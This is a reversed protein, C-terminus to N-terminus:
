RQESKWTAYEQARRKADPGSFIAVYCGGDDDFAEVRWDHPQRKDEFVEYEMLCRLTSKIWVPKRNHIGIARTGCGAEHPFIYSDTLTSVDGNAAPHCFQAVKVAFQYGLVHEKGCKMGIVQPCFERTLGRYEAILKCSKCFRM